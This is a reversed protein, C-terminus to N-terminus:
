RLQQWVWPLAISLLYAFGWARLLAECAVMEAVRDHKTHAPGLWCPASAMGRGMGAGSHVGTAAAARRAAEGRRCRMADGRSLLAAASTPVQFPKSRLVGTSLHSEGIRAAQAISVTCATRRRERLVM